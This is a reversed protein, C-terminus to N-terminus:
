GVTSLRPLGTVQVPGVIGPVHDNFGVARQQQDPCLFGVPAALVLAAGVQLQATRFVVSLGPSEGGALDVPIVVGKALHRGNSQLAAPHQGREPPLDGNRVALTKLVRDDKLGVVPAARPRFRPHHDVRGLHVHEQGLQGVTPDQGRVRIVMQGVPDRGYGAVITAARPVALVRGSEDERGIQVDATRYLYLQFFVGQLCGLGFVLFYNFDEM